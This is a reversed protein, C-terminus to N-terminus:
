TPPSLLKEHTYHANLSDAANSFNQCNPSISLFGHLQKCTLCAPTNPAITHTMGEDNQVLLFSSFLLRIADINMAFAFVTAKFYNHDM